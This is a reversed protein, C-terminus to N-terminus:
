REYEGRHEKIAEAYEEDLLYKAVFTAWVDELLRKNLTDATLYANAVHKLFDGHRSSAVEVAIIQLAVRDM